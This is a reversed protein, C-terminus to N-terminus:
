SRWSRGWGASSPTDLPVGDDFDRVKTREDREQPAILLAWKDAIGTRPGIMDKRMMGFAEKPHLYASFCVLVWVAMDCRGRAILRVALAAVTPCPFPKSVPM